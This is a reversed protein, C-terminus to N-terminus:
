TVKKIYSALLESVIYVLMKKQINIENCAPGLIVLPM